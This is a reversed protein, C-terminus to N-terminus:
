VKNMVIQAQKSVKQSLQHKKKKKPKFEMNYYTIGSDNGGHEIM